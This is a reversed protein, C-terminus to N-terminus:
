LVADTNETDMNTWEYVPKDNSWIMTLTCPSDTTCKKYATSEDGSDNVNSLRSELGDKYTITGRVPAVIGNTQNVQVVPQGDASADTVDLTNIAGTGAEKIAKGITGDAYTGNADFDGTAANEKITNLVSGDTSVDGNLTTISATNTAINDANTKAQTDLAVLNAGVGQGATIYNGNSAVKSDNKTQYTSAASASAAQTAEDIASLVRAEVAAVTPVYNDRTAVNAANVNYLNTAGPEETDAEEFEDNWTKEFTGQRAVTAQISAVKALNDASELGEQNLANKDYADNVATSANGIATAVAGSTVLNNANAGVTTDIGTYTVTGATDTATVVKGANTGGGLDDQKGDLATKVGGSTVPNGSDATPTTDFTLTDQKAALADHVADESPAKDTVGDTITSSIYNSASPVAATIASNIAGATLLDTSAANSANSSIARYEVTGANGTAIVAKGANDGGGLNDQKLADKADVYAQSAIVTTTDARATGAVGMIAAMIGFFALNKIKM